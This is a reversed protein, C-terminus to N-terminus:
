LGLQPYCIWILYGGGGVAFLSLFPGITTVMLKTGSRGLLNTMFSPPGEVQNRVWTADTAGWIVYLGGLVLFLGLGAYIAAETQSLIM